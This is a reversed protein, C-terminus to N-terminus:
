FNIVDMRGQRYDEIAQRIEGETNMVFPGYRAVPENLPAGAILLVELTAKADASNEIRVLDGDQAFMVMQGDGAHEGDAGFVGE